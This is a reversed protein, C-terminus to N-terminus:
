LGIAAVQTATKWKAIATAPMSTRRSGLYTRLITVSVERAVIIVAAWVPFRSVSTLAIVTAVVLLKDSLPDLWAGTVTTTGHRRALYGDLLDTLGGAVFVGCAAYSAARTQV